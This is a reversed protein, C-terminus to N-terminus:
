DNVRVRGTLWEVVITARRQGHRLMITGGTASGDAFFRFNTLEDQVGPGDRRADIREVVPPLAVTPLGSAVYSHQRTNIAVDVAHGQSVADDHAQRLTEGFAAAAARLRIAPLGAVATPVVAILVALIALVVLLELLTFGSAGEYEKLRAPPPRPM